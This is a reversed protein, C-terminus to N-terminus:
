WKCAGESRIDSGKPQIQVWDKEHKTYAEVLNGADRGQLHTHREQQRQSVGDAKCEVPHLCRTVLLEALIGLPLFVFLSIGLRGYCSQSLCTSHSVSTYEEFQLVTGTKQGHPPYSHDMSRYKCAKSCVSPTRIRGGKEAPPSHQKRKNIGQGTYERSTEPVM